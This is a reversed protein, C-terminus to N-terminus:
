AAKMLGVFSDIEAKLRKAQSALGGAAGRVQEVAAGTTGAALSLRGITAAVAETSSATEQVNRAIEATAAGQQEVASAISTAIGSVEEISNAIGQIAAVAERTAMQINHVQGAIEGTAEATQVALGKVESAVVAFGKGAEGARAAEITANLALLNTQGAIRTILAVVDGIKQAAEALARVTAGTRRAEEVARGSTRASQAVQRSIEQISASLQASATAVTQVGISAREAAEVATTAQQRTESATASMAGATMGLEGSAATLQGAVGSVAVGFGSVMEDLRVAREARGALSQAAEAEMARTRVAGDRLLTVARGIDGLQDSRGACPILGDLRGAAIVRVAGALEGLPRVAIRLVLWLLLGALGTVVIAALAAQEQIRDIVVDLQATPLGVFLIGIPRGSVDRLPEYSTIHPQDLIAVQGRFPQGRGVVTDYAPSQALKTGVARRGDELRISTAIRTDGAFVTAVGRSAGGVTDVLEDLGEPPKGNLLLGGDPGSSWAGRQAISARLTALNADLQTEANTAVVDRVVRGTWGQVAAVSLIVAVIGAILVSPVLGARSGALNLRSIADVRAIEL